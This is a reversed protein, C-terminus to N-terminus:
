IIRKSTGLIWRAIGYLISILICSFNAVGSAILLQSVPYVSLIFAVCRIELRWISLPFAWGAVGEVFMKLPGHEPLHTQLILGTSLHYNCGLAGQISPDFSFCSLSSPLSTEM